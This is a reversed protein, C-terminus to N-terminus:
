FPRPYRMDQQLEEHHHNDFDAEEEAAEYSEEFAELAIPLLAEVNDESDLNNFGPLYLEANFRHM